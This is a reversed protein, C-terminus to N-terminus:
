EGGPLDGGTKAVFLKVFFYLGAMIASGFVAWLANAVWGLASKGGEFNDRWTELAEIKSTHAALVKNTESLKESLLPMAQLTNMIGNIDHRLARVDGKSENALNGLVAIDKEIGVMGSIRENLRAIGAAADRLVQMDGDRQKESNEMMTALRTVNITLDQIDSTNRETQQLVKQYLM